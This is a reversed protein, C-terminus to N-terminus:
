SDPNATRHITASWILATFLKFKSGAFPGGTKAAERAVVLAEGVGEGAEM